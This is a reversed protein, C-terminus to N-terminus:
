AATLGLSRCINAQTERVAIRYVREFAQATHADCYILQEGTGPWWLYVCWNNGQALAIREENAQRDDHSLTTLSIQKTRFNSNDSSM